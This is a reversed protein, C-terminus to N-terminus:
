FSHPASPCNHGATWGAVSITSSEIAPLFKRKCFSCGFDTGRESMGENVRYHATFQSKTRKYITMKCWREWHYLSHYNKCVSIANHCQKWTMSVKWKKRQMTPIKWPAVNYIFKCVWNQSEFLIASLLSLASPLSKPCLCVRSVWKSPPTVARIVAWELKFIHFNVTINQFNCSRYSSDNRTLM